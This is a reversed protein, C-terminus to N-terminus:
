LELLNYLNVINRDIYKSVNLMILTVDIVTYESEQGIDLIKPV